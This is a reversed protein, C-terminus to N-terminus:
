KLKSVTKRWLPEPSPLHLKAAAGNSFREFERHDFWEWTGAGALSIGLTLVVVGFIIQPMGVFIFRLASGYTGAMIVLIWGSGIALLGAAILAPGPRDALFNILVLWNGKSQVYASGILVAGVLLLMLGFILAPAGSWNDWGYDSFRLSMQRTYVAELGALTLGIGILCLGLQVGNDLAFTKGAVIAAIGVAIAFYEILSTVRM